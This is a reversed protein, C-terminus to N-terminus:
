EDEAIMQISGELGPTVYHTISDGSRYILFVNLKEQAALAIAAETGMVLFATAYADATMCNDTIVTASLLHHRANYGTRPDVIHVYLEGNEKYYNRYNGSTAMAQNDLPVIAYTKREDLAVLPDEIGIRWSDGKENKGACRVEGGIEVLYNKIELRELYKSLVDVAQGKAIASFDLQMGAPKIWVGGKKELKGLGVVKRLSDITASDPLDRKKDPGFGWANILPGVTPDFAGETKRWVEESLGMVEQMLQSPAQLTDRDNFTSIESDPLYTSLAENFAVLISDTHTQNLAEVDSLYKVTYNITGMTQGNIQFLREPSDRFFVYWVAMAMMFLSLILFRPVRKVPSKM